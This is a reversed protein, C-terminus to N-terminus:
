VLLAALRAPIFLIICEILLIIRSWANVRPDWYQFLDTVYSVDWNILAIITAIFYGCGLLVVTIALVLIILNIITKM